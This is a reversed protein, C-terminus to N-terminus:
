LAGVCVMVHRAHRPRISVAFALGYAHGSQFFYELVNEPGKGGRRQESEELAVM